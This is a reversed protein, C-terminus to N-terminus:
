AAKKFFNYPLGNCYCLEDFDRCQDAEMIWRIATERDKAGSAIVEGIRKAFRVVNRETQATQEQIVRDLAAVLWDWEAQKETNTATHWRHWFGEGPRSGYVDKHLDSISDECFTYPM